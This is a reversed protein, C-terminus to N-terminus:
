RVPSDAYRTVYVEFALRAAEDQAGEFWRGYHFFLLRVSDRLEKRTVKFTDNRSFNRYSYDLREDRM